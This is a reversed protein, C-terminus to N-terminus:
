GDCNIIRLAVGKDNMIWVMCWGPLFTIQHVLRRVYKAFVLGAFDQFSPIKIEAIIIFLALIFGFPQASAQLYRPITQQPCNFVPHRWLLHTIM